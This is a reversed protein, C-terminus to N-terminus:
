KAGFLTMFFSQVFPQFRSLAIFYGFSASVFFGVITLSTYRLLVFVGITFALLLSM